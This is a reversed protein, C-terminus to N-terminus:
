NDALINVVHNCFISSSVPGTLSKAEDRVYFSKVKVIDNFM